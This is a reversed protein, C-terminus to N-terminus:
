RSHQTQRADSVIPVVALTKGLPVIVRLMTEITPNSGGREIRAIQPQKIGSMEELRQQSIGQSRRAEVLAATLEARMNSEAIEEPTFIERDFSEDWVRFGKKCVM